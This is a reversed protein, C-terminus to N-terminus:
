LSLTTTRCNREIRNKASSFFESEENAIKEPGGSYPLLETKEIDTNLQTTV